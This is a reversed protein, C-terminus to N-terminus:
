LGKGNRVAARCHQAACCASIGKRHNAEQLQTKPPLLPGHSPPRKELGVLSPVSTAHALLLADLLQRSRQGPSRPPLQDAEAARKGRRRGPSTSRTRDSRGPHADLTIHRYWGICRCVEYEDLGCENKADQFCEENAWRSGAICALAALDIGVPAYDLYYAVEAPDSLGENSIVWAEPHRRSVPRCQTSDAAAWTGPPRVPRTGPRGIPRERSPIPHGPRHGPLRRGRRRHDQRHRSKGRVAGM